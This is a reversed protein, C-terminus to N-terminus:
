WAWARQLSKHSGRRISRGAPPASQFYLCVLIPETAAKEAQSDPIGDAGGNLKMWPPTKFWLLCPRHLDM